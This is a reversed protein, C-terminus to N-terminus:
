RIGEYKLDPVGQPTPSSMGKVLESTAAPLIAEALLPDAEPQRKM